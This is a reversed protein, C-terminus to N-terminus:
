KMQANFEDISIGLYPLDKKEINATDSYFLAAFTKDKEHEITIEKVCYERKAAITAIKNIAEESLVNALGKAKLQEPINRNNYYEVRAAANKMLLGYDYYSVIIGYYDGTPINELTYESNGEATQAIHYGDYNESFQGSKLNILNSYDTEPTAKKSILIILAGGDLTFEPTGPRKCVIKNDNTTNKCSISGFGHVDVECTAKVKGDNSAATLTVKGIGEGSVVGKGSVVACDDNSVSFVVDAGKPEVTIESSLDIEKGIGVSYATKAFKISTAAVGTSGGNGAGVETDKDSGGGCAVFSFLMLFCMALCLLKKM